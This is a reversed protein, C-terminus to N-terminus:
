CCISGTNEVDQLPTGVWRTLRFEDYKKKLEVFVTSDSSAVGYSRARLKEKYEPKDNSRRVLLYDPTDYYINCIVSKGFKDAKMYDKMLKKLEASQEKTIIYKIEYRKFINHYSMNM